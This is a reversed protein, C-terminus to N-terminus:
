INKLHKKLQKLNDFLFVVEKNSDLINGSGDDFIRISNLKSNNVENYEKFLKLLKEM